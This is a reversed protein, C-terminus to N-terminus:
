GLKTLEEKVVAYDPEIGPNEAIWKYRIVGDADLIFVSRQAVDYGSLGAFDSLLVGYTKITERTFDSLLPFQLNNRSAFGSNAFPSDVSIGVVNAALDGLDAMSDRLTCMEKECVGTFAGPYFALVTARGKFDHLSKAERNTDVLSFDPAPSGIEIM